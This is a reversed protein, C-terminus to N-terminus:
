DREALFRWLVRRVIESVKAKADYLSYVRAM